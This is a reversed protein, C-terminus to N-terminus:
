FDIKEIEKGLKLKSLIKIIEKKRQENKLKEDKLTELEKELKRIIYEETLIPEETSFPNPLYVTDATALTTISLNTTPVSYSDGDASYQLFGDNIAQEKNIGM